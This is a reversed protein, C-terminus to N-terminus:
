HLAILFGVAALRMGVNFLWFKLHSGPATLLSCNEARTPAFPALPQSGLPYLGAACWAARITFAAIVNLLKM